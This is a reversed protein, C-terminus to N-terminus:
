NWLTRNFSRHFLFPSFTTIIEIGYPEILLRNGSAHIATQNGIEIGYPEILLQRYDQFIQNLVEIEIGYPEILLM